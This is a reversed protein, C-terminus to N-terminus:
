AHRSGLTILCVWVFPLRSWAFWLMALCIPTFAPFIFTRWHAFPTISPYIIHDTFPPWHPAFSSGFLAGARRSADFGNECISLINAEPTGHFATIVTEDEVRQWAEVFRNYRRYL